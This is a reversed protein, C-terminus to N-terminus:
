KRKVITTKWQSVLMSYILDDVWEGKFWLSKVFHAEKRLGIREM